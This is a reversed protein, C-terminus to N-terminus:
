KKRRSEYLAIFKEPTIGAVVEAVADLALDGVKKFRVCGKGMDLRKGARAFAERFRAEGTPDMYLPVLHLSCANKQSALGVYGLPRGNYTKPFRELPIVYYIMGFDIIERYGEPLHERIFDRVASIVARRDEPLEALYEDVTAAESKAM